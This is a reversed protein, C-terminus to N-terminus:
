AAAVASPGLLVRLEALLGTRVEVCFNDPLRVVQRDGLHLFVQSEGPHELLLGKLGELLAESLGASRQEATVKLMQRVSERRGEADDEHEILYAANRIEDILSESLNM